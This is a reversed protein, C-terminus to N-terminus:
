CLVSVEGYSIKEILGNEKKVVLRGETDICMAYAKYHENGTNVMVETRLMCLRKEYERYMEGEDSLDFSLVKEAIASALVDRIRSQATKEDKYLSGAKARIEEPFVNQGTYINIGIGMIIKGIVGAETIAEALLGGAKRGNVMIDNVWKVSPVIGCVGEIADCVCVATYATVATPHAFPIREAYLIVSMYLGSGPPSFFGKGARGRGATQSGAMIVTGHEAGNIARERAERQTSDIEDFYIINVNTV